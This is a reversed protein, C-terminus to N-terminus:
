DWWKMIDKNLIKFFIERARQEKFRAWQLDDELAIHIEENHKENKARSYRISVSYLEENLDSENFPIFEIKSSGYQAEYEEHVEQTYGDKFGLDMLRLALRIRDANYQGSVLHGNELYKAQNEFQFKLIDLTHDYDWDDTRWIVPLWKLFRKVRRIFYTVKHKMTGLIRGIYM